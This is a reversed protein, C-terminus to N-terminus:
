FDELSAKLMAALELYRARGAETPKVEFLVIVNETREGTLRSQEQEM